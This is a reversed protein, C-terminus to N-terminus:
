GGLSLITELDRQTKQPDGKLTITIRTQQTSRSLKIDSKALLLKSLKKQWETVKEDIVAYAARRAKSKIDDGDSCYLRALEEARRVSGNEKLITKYAQVMQSENEIAMLARAHGETILNGNLGDKIADPLKLLKITNSIFSESKNVREAIESQSYGFDRSLQIFARAREIPSFDVRQVNEIIAMELMGKPTTKKIIVPVEKVGVLQAARWRREGAIIQFGAPTQAVVLPELIGYIKISDALEQLQEKDFM